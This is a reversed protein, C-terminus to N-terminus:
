IPDRYEVITDVDCILSDRLLEVSSFGADSEPSWTSAGDVMDTCPIFHSLSVGSTKTIFDALM